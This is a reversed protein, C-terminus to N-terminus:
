KKETAPAIAGSGGCKECNKGAKAADACCEHGCANGDKAAKACCKAQKAEPTTDKATDAAFALGCSALSLLSVLRLLKFSKM